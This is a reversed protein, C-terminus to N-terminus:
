VIDDLLVQNLYIWWLVLLEVQFSSILLEKEQEVQFHYKNDKNNELHFSQDKNILCFSKHWYFHWKKSKKNNINHWLKWIFFLFDNMQNIAISFLFFTITTLRNIIKEYLFTSQYFLNVYQLTFDLFHNRNDSCCKM